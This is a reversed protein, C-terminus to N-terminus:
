EKWSKRLTKFIIEQKLNSTLVNMFGNNNKVEVKEEFSLLFQQEKAKQCLSEFNHM